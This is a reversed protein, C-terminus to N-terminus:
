INYDAFPISTLILTYLDENRHNYRFELEKLYYVFYKSSIGHFKILQEKAYSWFGEIGNIYVEGNEFGEEKNIRLNRFYDIHTMLTDYGEYQDTYIISGWKAKKITGKLLTGESVDPIIEVKVKGEREIIGLLPIKGDAEEGHEFGDFYSEGLQGDEKLAHKYIGKRLMRYFGYVTSYSMDLEKSAHNASIELEFLKVLVLLSSYTIRTKELASGRRPSWERKCKYCKYICRRIWGVKELGCFPCKKYVKLLGLSKLYDCAKEESAALKMLKIM